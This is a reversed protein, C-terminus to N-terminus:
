DIVSRLRADQLIVCLRRRPSLITGKLGAVGVRLRRIRESYVCRHGLPSLGTPNMHSVCEQLYLIRQTKNQRWSHLQQAGAAYHGAFMSGEFHVSQFTRWRRYVDVGEDGFDAQGGGARGDSSRLSFEPDTNAQSGSEVQFKIWRGGSLLQCKINNEM